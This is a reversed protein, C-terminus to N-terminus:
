IVRNFAYKFQIVINFIQDRSTSKVQYSNDIIQIPYIENQGKMHYVERSEIMSTLWESEDQTIWNSQVSWVEEGKQAYTTDGRDGITYNRSLLKKYTKREVNITKKGGLKFNFYDWGGLSNLWVFRFNEDVNCDNDIRYFKENSITQIGGLLFSALIPGDQGDQWIDNLAGPPPYDGVSGSSVLFQNGGGLASSVEWWQNATSFWCFMTYVGDNWTFYPLSNYFGAYEVDGIFGSYTLGVYDLRIVYDDTIFVKYNDCSNFFSSGGAWQTINEPGVGVDMRHYSNSASILKKETNIITNDSTYTEVNLSYGVTRDLFLSLTEYDSLLTKKYQNSIYDTLFSVGSSQSAMIYTAGFNYGNEDYQRTGYFAEYYSSTGGTNIISTIRGSENSQTVGFNINTRIVGGAYAQVTALGDYQPNVQKNDKDIRIVDGVSFTFTAATSLTLDGFLNATQTFVVNPNYEYGYEIKYRLLANDSHTWAEVYPKPQYGFFSELMKSPSYECEGNPRPPLRYSQLEDYVDIFPEAEKFLTVTYKFNSASSSTTDLVFWVPSNLIPSLFDPNQIISVTAM